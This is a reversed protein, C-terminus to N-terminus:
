LGLDQLLVLLSLSTLSKFYPISKQLLFVKLINLLCVGFHSFKHSIHLLALEGVGTYLSGKIVLFFFPCCGYISLQPFLFYHNGKIFLFFSLGPQCPETFQPSRVLPDSIRNGTLACAQTASWAGLSPALSVCGCM